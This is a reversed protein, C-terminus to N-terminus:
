ARRWDLLLNNAPMAHRQQLALGARGAQAAM